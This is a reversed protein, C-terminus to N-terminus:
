APVMMIWHPHVPATDPDLRVQRIFGDGPGDPEARSGYGQFTAPKREAPYGRAVGGRRTESTGKDNGGTGHAMEGNMDAGGGSGATGDWAVGNVRWAPIRTGSMQPGM